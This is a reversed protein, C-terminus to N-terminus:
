GKMKSKRNFLGEPMFLLIIIFLVYTLELAYSENLLVAGVREIIGIILGGILAGKVDGKGGLVVIIFSKNSFVAGVKPYIQFTPILLASSVGVLALSLGFALCFLLEINIGMLRAVTRNQATARLARGQESKQLFLYLAGTVVLAICFSILRPRSIILDNLRITTGSYKTNVGMVFSGFIMTMCNWLVMSLGATSLLVSLPERAVERKLLDNFVFKQLLFGFVFLVTATIFITLYPDMGLHQVCLYSIYMGVMLTEGHAWNIIGMVGFCLSLGVAITAYVGGQLIGDILAQLYITAM